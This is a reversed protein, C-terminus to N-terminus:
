GLFVQPFFVIPLTDARVDPLTKQIQEIFTHSYQRIQKVTPPSNQLYYGVYEKGEFPIATLGLEELRNLHMKLEPIM